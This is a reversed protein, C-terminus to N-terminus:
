SVMRTRVEPSIGHRQLFDTRFSGTSKALEYAIIKRVNKDRIKNTEVIAFNRRPDDTTIKAVRQTESTYTSPSNFSEKNEKLFTKPKKAHVTTKTAHAEAQRKNNDREQLM